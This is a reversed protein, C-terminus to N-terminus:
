ALLGPAAATSATSPTPPLVHEPPHPGHLVAFCLCCLGTHCRCHLRSGQLLLPVRRGEGCEGEGDLIFRAEDEPHIHEQLPCACSTCLLFSNGVCASAGRFHCCGECCVCALRQAPHATTSKSTHPQFCTTSVQRHYFLSCTAPAQRATVAAATHVPFSLQTPLNAFRVPGLRCLSMGMVKFFMWMGSM